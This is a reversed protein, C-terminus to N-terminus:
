GTASCRNFVPIRMAACRPCDSIRLEGSHGGSLATINTSSAPDYSAKRELEEEEDARAPSRAALGGATGALLGGSGAVTAVTLGTGLVDRRSLGDQSSKSM